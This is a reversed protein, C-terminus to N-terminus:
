ITFDTIVSQRIVFLNSNKVRKTSRRWDHSKSDLDLPLLVAPPDRLNGLNWPCHNVPTSAFFCYQANFSQRQTDKSLPDLM